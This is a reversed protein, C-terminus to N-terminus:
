AKKWFRWRALILGGLCLILAGYFTPEPTAVTAVFNVQTGGYSPASGTFPDEGYSFEYTNGSADGFIALVNKTQFFEEAHVKYDPVFRFYATWGQRMTERGMFRKGLADQFIHGETMLECLANVDGANIRKIFDM